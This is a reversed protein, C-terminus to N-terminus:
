LSTLSASREFQSCQMIGELTIDTLSMRFEDKECMWCSFGNEMTDTNEYSYDVVFQCQGDLVCLHGDM